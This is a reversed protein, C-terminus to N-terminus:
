ENVVEIQKAIVNGTFRDIAVRVWYRGRLSTM